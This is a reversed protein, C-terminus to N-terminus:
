KGQMFKRITDIVFGLGLGVIEQYDGFNIKGLEELGAIMGIGVSYVLLHVAIKKLDTKNLSFKLSEM